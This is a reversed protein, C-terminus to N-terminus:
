SVSLLDQVEKIPKKQTHKQQEHNALSVMLKPLIMFPLLLTCTGAKYHPSASCQWLQYRHTSLQCQLLPQEPLLM